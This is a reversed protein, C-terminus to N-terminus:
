KTKGGKTTKAAPKRVTTHAPKENEDFAAVLGDLVDIEPIEADEDIEDKTDETDTSEADAENDEEADASEETPQPNKQPEPSESPTKVDDTLVDPDPAIEKIAGAGLLWAKKGEPLNDPIIEGRTYTKGCIRTYMQAVYM